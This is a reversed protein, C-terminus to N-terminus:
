HRKSMDSYQHQSSIGRWQTHLGAYKTGTGLWSLTPLKRCSPYEAYFYPSLHHPPNSILGSPTAGLRITPIEAETIKVQVM